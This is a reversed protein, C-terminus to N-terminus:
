LVPHLCPSSPSSLPQRPVLQGPSVRLVPSLCMPRASAGSPPDSGPLIVARLQSSRPSLFQSKARDELMERCLASCHSYRYFLLPPIRSALQPQHLSCLVSLRYNPPVLAQLWASSPFAPTSVCVGCVGPAGSRVGLEGAMLSRDEAKLSYIDRSLARRM